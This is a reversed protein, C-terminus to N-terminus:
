FNFLIVYFFDIKKNSDYILKIKRIKFVNIDFVLLGFKLCMGGLLFCILLSWMENIENVVVKFDFYFCMKYRVIFYLFVVIM